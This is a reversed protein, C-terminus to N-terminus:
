RVVPLSSHVRPVRAHVGPQAAYYDRGALSRLYLQSALPDGAAIWAFTGHVATLLFVAVAVTAVHLGGVFVLALASTVEMVVIPPEVGGWLVARVLSPYIAHATPGADDPAAPAPTAGRLTV